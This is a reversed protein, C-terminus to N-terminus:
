GTNMGKLTSCWEKIISSNGYIAKLENFNKFELALMENYWSLLQNKAKPYKECYYVVTKRNIINM